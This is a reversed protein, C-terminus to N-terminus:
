NQLLNVQGSGPSDADIWEAITHGSQESIRHDAKEYSWIQYHRDMFCLIVWQADPNEPIQIFSIFDSDLDAIGNETKSFSVDSLLYVYDTHTNIWQVRRKLPWDKFEAPDKPPWHSPKFAFAIESWDSLALDGISAPFTDGNEVAMATAQAQLVIMQMAEHKQQESM